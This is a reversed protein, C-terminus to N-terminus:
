SSRNEGCIEVGLPNSTTSSAVDSTKIEIKTIQARIENKIQLATNVGTNSLTTDTILICNQDYIVAQCLTTETCRNFCAFGSKNVSEQIEFSEVKTAEFHITKWAFSQKLLLFLVLQWLFMKAVAINM